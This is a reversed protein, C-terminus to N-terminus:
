EGQNYNAGSAGGKYRPAEHKRWKERELDCFEGVEPRWGLHVTGCPGNRQKAIILECQRNDTTEKDYYDERYLFIIIDAAQEIGGSERLDSLMPRKNQRAEVGRSLQSLCIIPLQLRVALRKLSKCIMEVELARTDAEPGEIYGIYDIAVQDVKIGRMKLRKLKAEMKAVTEVGDNTDYIILPADRLVGQATTIRDWEPDAIQGTRLSQSDVQASLTYLRHLLSARDMELSFIVTTKPQENTPKKQTAARYAMNLVFQTKGMAPRGAIIVLEGPHFGTTTADLDAYGSTVGPITTKSEWQKEIQAYAEDVYVSLLPVTNSRGKSLGNNVVDSVLELVEDFSHGNTAANFLVPIDNGVFRRKDATDKVASALYSANAPITAEAYMETLYPIGGAEATRHNNELFTMVMGLSSDLGLANIEQIHGYICNHRKDYFDTPELLDEIEAYAQPYALLLGLIGREAQLAEPLIIRGSSDQM